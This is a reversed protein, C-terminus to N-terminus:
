KLRKNSDDDSSSSLSSSSLSERQEKEKTQKYCIIAQFLLKIAHLIGNADMNSFALIESVVFLAFPIVNMEICVAISSHDDDDSM